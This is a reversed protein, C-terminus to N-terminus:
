FIHWRHSDRSDQDAKCGRFVPSCWLNCAHIYPRDAHAAPQFTAQRGRACSKTLIRTASKDVAGQHLNSITSFAPRSDHTLFSWFITGSLTNINNGWRVLGRAPIRYRVTQPAPILPDPKLLRDRNQGGVTREVPRNPLLDSKSAGPFYLRLTATEPSQRCLVTKRRLRQHTHSDYFKSRRSKEGASTSTFNRPAQCPLVFQTSYGARPPNTTILPFDNDLYMYHSHITLLSFSRPSQLSPCILPYFYSTKKIGYRIKLYM